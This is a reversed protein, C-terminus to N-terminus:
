SNISLRYCKKPGFWLPGYNEFVPDTLDTFKWTKFIFSAHDAWMVYSDSKHKQLNELITQKDM